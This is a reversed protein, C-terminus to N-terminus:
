GDTDQALLGRVNAAAHLNCEFLNDLPRLVRGRSCQGLAKGRKEVHRMECQQKKTNMIAALGPFGRAAQDIEYFRSKREGRKSQLDRDNGITHFFERSRKRGDKSSVVMFGGGIGCGGSFGAPVYEVVM